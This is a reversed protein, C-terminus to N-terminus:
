KGTESRQKGAKMGYDFSLKREFIVKDSEWWFNKEVVTKSKDELTM